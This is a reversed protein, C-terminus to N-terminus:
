ETQLMKQHATTSKHDIFVLLVSVLVANSVLLVKVIVYVHSYKIGSLNNQQCCVCNNHSYTRIWEIYGKAAISEGTSDLQVAPPKKKKRNYPM